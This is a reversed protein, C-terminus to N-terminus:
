KDFVALSEIHATHPYFDYFALGSLRYGNRCLIASDRALAAPNCSVYALLPPGKEVLWATLQPALGHRPPDAVIFGYAGRHEAAWDTDRINFYRAPRGSGTSDINKRALALAQANYEMLDIGPFGGGLFAAFTGLGCYLDAMPRSRDAKNATDKLTRLLVELMAANSQFFVSVDLCIERGLLNITGQEVGGEQLFLGNRAYVNVRQKTQYPIHGQGSKQLFVRIGSDAVPCDTIHIIEDSKRAKLGFYGRTNQNKRGNNSTQGGSCHLQMRSRYEWPSSTFIEPEPPMFGGIRSFADILIATKAAIQAEYRLHQLDCGGCLGYYPCQPAVRDPSPECIEVLEARAWTKHEATLLCRVTDGPATQRVFVTKGNLRGVGEGGAAISDITVLVENHM